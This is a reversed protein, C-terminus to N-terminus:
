DAGRVLRFRVQGATKENVTTWSAPLKLTDAARHTEIYLHAGRALWNSDLLTCLYALDIGDFPPDLFVIDFPTPPGDLFELADCRVVNGEGCGLDNLTTALQQATRRDREVFTVASAGRSLAELGLAGTGAFLDLCRSGGVSPALWNFLTERVRDGTPRTLDGPLCPFKRGRWRGGIIRLKGAQSRSGRKTMSRMTVLFRSARM